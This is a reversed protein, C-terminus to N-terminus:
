RGGDPPAAGSAAHMATTLALTQKSLDLLTGNQDCEAQITDGFRRAERTLGLIQESLHILERNQRDEAQVTRWEARESMPTTPV